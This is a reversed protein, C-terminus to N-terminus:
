ESPQIQLLVLQFMLDANPPVAEGAGSAGYAIEAPIHALLRDGPRMLTLAETIGPILQTVGFTAPAGNAWSSDFFASTEALRGEYHVVVRDSSIATRVDEPGRELWVYSLGSPRTILGEATNQWPFYAQWAAIDPGLPEVIGDPSMTAASNPEALEVPQAAPALETQDSAPPLILADGELKVTSLSEATLYGELNVRYVLDANPPIVDRIGQPGFAEATPVYVLWEDGPNMLRVAAAWGDILDTMVYVSSEGRAYSSDVLTGQDALFAEYHVVITADMGPSGGAQDGNIIPIYRVGSALKNMNRCDTPFPAQYPAPGPSLTPCETQTGAFISSPVSPLAQCASLATLGIGFGIWSMARTM